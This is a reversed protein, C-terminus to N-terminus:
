GVAQEKAAGEAAAPALQFPGDIKLVARTNRRWAEWLAFGYILLSLPNEMGVLVPAGLSIIGAVIGRVLPSSEHLAPGETPETTAADEAAPPASVGAYVEPALSACISLYTLGVALLQYFAGGRREAGKSVASGVMWGVVVAILGLNYGTVASVGWYLVAGAVGAGAGFALARFFRGSKSGGTMSAEVEQRCSPCLLHGNVEFYTETIDRKCATCQPAARPETFEAREFQLPADSSAAPSTPDTM